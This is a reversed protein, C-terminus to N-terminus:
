EKSQEIVRNVGNESDNESRMKEWKRRSKVLLQFSVKKKMRKMGKRRPRDAESGSSGPELGFVVSKRVLFYSHGAIRDTLDAGPSVQWRSKPAVQSHRSGSGTAEPRSAETDGSRYNPVWQGLVIRIGSSDSSRKLDINFFVSIEGLM